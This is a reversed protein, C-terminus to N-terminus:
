VRRRLIYKMFTIISCRIEKEQKLKSLFMGLSISPSFLSFFCFHLFKQKLPLFHREYLNSEIKQRLPRTVKGVRLSQYFDIRLIFLFQEVCLAWDLSPFWFSCFAIIIIIITCSSGGLWLAGGWIPWEFTILSSWAGRWFKLFSFNVFGM